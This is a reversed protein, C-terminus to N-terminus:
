PAPTGAKALEDQMAKRLDPSVNPLALGKRLNDIGRNQDHLFHLYLVGLSYRTAPNDGHTASKELYGAAEEHKGAQHSIVGLLHLAHPNREELALARRTFEEAAGNQGEALLREAVRLLINADKPNRAAENMLQGIDSMAPGPAAIHGTEILSPNAIRCALSILVIAAVTLFLSIILAKQRAGPENMEQM